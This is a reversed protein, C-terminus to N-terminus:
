TGTAAAGPPGTMAAPGVRHPEALIHRRLALRARLLGSKVNSISMGMVDAIQQYGMGDIDRLVLLACPTEDIRSLAARFPTGANSVSHDQPDCQERLAAVQDNRTDGAVAAQGAMGRRRYGLATRVVTRVVFDIGPTGRHSGATAIVQFLANRTVEVAPDHGGVIHMVINFLRDRHTGLLAGVEARDPPSSEDGPRHRFVAHIAMNHRQIPRTRSQASVRQDIM